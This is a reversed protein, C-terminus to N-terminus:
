KNQKKNDNIMKVLDHQVAENFVFDIVHTGDPATVLMIAKHPISGVGEFVITTDFTHKVYNNDEEHQIIYAMIVSVLAVPNLDMAMALNILSYKKSYDKNIATNM